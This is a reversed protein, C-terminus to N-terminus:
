DPPPPECPGFPENVMRERGVLHIDGIINGILPTAPTFDYDVQVELADCQEGPDDEAAPDDYDPFEWSRVTVSIDEPSNTLADARELATDEICALRSPTGISCDSRGTVGYRAAERSSGQITVWANYIRSMDIIGFIIIMLVPAILAFEAIAQGRQQKWKRRKMAM